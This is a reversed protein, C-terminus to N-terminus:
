VHDRSTTYLYLTVRSPIPRTAVSGTPLIAPLTPRHRLAPVYSSVSPEVYPEVDVLLLSWLGRIAPLPLVSEAKRCTTTSFNPPGWSRMLAAVVPSTRRQFQGPTITVIVSRHPRKESCQRITVVGASSAWIASCRVASRSRAFLGELGGRNKKARETCKLRHAKWRDVQHLRGQDRSGDVMVSPHDAHFATM